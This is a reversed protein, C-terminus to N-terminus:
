CQTITIKVEDPHDPFVLQKDVNSPTPALIAPPLTDERFEISSGLCSSKRIHKHFIVVISSITSVCLGAILTITVVDM